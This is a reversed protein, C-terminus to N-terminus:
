NHLVSSSSLGQLSPFSFPLVLNALSVELLQKRVDECQGKVGILLQKLMMNEAGLQAYHARTQSLELSLKEVLQVYKKVEDGAHVKESSLLELQKYMTEMKKKKKM